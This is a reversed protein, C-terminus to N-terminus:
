GFTFTFARFGPKPINIELIRKGYENGEILKYLTEDKVAGNGSVDIDEGANNGPKVGDLRIIFAKKNEASAVMYVDKADYHFIIKANESMSEAYESTINWTGVLYLTNVVIETPETFIQEGSILSVGNGLLKNRDFGFYVEPSKVLSFNVDAVDKPLVIDSALEGEMGLKAMREKLLEQIKKETEDYAGEGIHDYVIYGDIDVLYKRPWFQNGYARWTAFDNDLVVPYQIDYKEVAALVNEHKKEFEFEPSHVGIIELGQDRYKDYWANLYPLTRQCNICSYTWFDVLVVQKGIHEQLTVGDTNIFGSPAVIEKAPEYQAEKEAVSMLTLESAGPAVDRAEMPQLKLFVIAGMIAAIVIISTLNKQFQM